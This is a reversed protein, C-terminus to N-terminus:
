RRRWAPRLARAAELVAARGVGTEISVYVGYRLLYGSWFTYPKGGNDSSSGAALRIFGKPIRRWESVDGPRRLESITISRLPDAEPGYILESGSTTRGGSAVSMRHTASLKLGAIASGARLLPRGSGSRMPGVSTSGSSHASFPSPRATLRAFAATSFPETRALLVRTDVPKGGPVRFRFDVPRYTLRDIAVENKWPGHELAPSTLWYVAHGYITGKREIKVTGEVLARRYGTWLANYAPSVRTLTTGPERDQPYLTEGIIRGDQRLVLHVRTSSRDSWTELEFVPVITRGTRINVLEEGSPTRLVLHLVRGNGIAALARDLIGNKGGGAPWLLTVALAAAGLALVAAARPLVRGRAPRPARQTEAVADAIALLEPEERLAELVEPDRVTM